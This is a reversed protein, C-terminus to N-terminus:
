RLPMIQVYVYWEDKEKNDWTIRYSLNYDITSTILIGRCDRKKYANSQSDTKEKISKTSVFKNNSKKIFDIDNVIEEVTKLVSPSTCNPLLDKTISALAIEKILDSPKDESKPTNSAKPLNELLISFDQNSTTATPTEPNKSTAANKQDIEQKYIGSSESNKFSNSTWILIVVILIIGLIIAFASNNTTKPNTITNELDDPSPHIESLSDNSEDKSPLKQWEMIRLETYKVPQLKENGDAMVLAKLWLGKNVNKSDIEKAIEEYIDNPKDTISSKTESPASVIPNIPNIPNIKRNTQSKAFLLFIAIIANAIPILLLILWWLSIGTDRTRKVAAAITIWTAPIVILFVIIYAILIASDPLIKGLGASILVGFFSFLSAFILSFFYEKRGISGKLHFFQM